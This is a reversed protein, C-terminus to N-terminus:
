TINIFICTLLYTRYFVGTPLACMAHRPPYGCAYMMCLRNIFVIHVMIHVELDLRCQTCAAPKFAKPM